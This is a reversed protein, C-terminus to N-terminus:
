RGNVAKLIADLKADRSLRDAKVEEELDEQNERLTKVEGLIDRQTLAIAQVKDEIQEVKQDASSGGAWTGTGGALVATVILIILRELNKSTGDTM